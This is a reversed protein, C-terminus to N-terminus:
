VRNIETEVTCIRRNEVRVDRRQNDGDDQEPLSGARDLSERDRQGDAYERCEERCHEQRTKEEIEHGTEHCDLRQFHM